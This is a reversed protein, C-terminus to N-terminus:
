CFPKPGFDVSEEMMARGAGLQARISWHSEFGPQNQDDAEASCRAARNLLAHQLVCRPAGLCAPKGNVQLSSGLLDPILMPIQESWLDLVGLTRNLPSGSM